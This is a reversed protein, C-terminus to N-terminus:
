EYQLADSLKMRAAREAPVCASGIVIVFAAAFCAVLLWPRFVFLVAHGTTPLTSLNILYAVLLGMLAGPALGIVGMMTAQALITRRVQRRTMAVVRLVGIERTQELINMALTNVLGFAAIVFGLALLAWLSGIVGNMMQEIFRVLDAYSQLMLGHENCLTLLAAEVAPLQKDDARILYVDVGQVDLLKEAVDRHIYITMGGALYDNAIGVIRLERTGDRTDLPVLGGVKLGARQAFVSSVVVAGTPLERRLEDSDGQVLDFYVQRNASFNRIVVIISNEGSTAKVFRVADLDEVGPIKQIEDGLGDPMDAADGSAMDPMLARVFFDGVIANRYWQQVDRINDIITSAMGIGTAIAIFLMGVTMATRGPHRVLQRRALRGEVGFIPRLMFETAYTIGGLTPPLLFVMGVLLVVSAVVSFDIPIWGLICVILAVAAGLVIVLGVITMLLHPAEIEGSAVVRMAESPSLLGARRAPLFTAVLSLGLGFVVALVFPLASLQIPPMATQLLRETALTLARAGALGAVGGVVTGFLGLLLGERLILTTVQRRTAGIARLIGLQRRREGVAMQFTNFIIFAAIVLAFATALQLGQETAMMTEEALQSQMNPQRVSLGAPLKKAVLAQTADLDVGQDLVLQVSDITGEMKFRSQALGLSMYLMGGAVVATGGRPELFGVVESERMGSRTLMRLKEGVQIGLGRAFNSDLVVETGSGFMRGAILEVDRVLRDRDPVIGLAQVRVKKDRFYVITFRRIL